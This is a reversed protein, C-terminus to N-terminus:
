SFQFYLCLPYCSGMLLRAVTELHQVIFKVLVVVFLLDDLLLHENHLTVTWTTYSGM